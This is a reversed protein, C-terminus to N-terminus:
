TLQRRLWRVSFAALGIALVIFLAAEFAQLEWYRGAPQYTVLEHFKAAIRAACAHVEPQIAPGPATHGGGVHAGVPIGSTLTPCAREIFQPAPQNGTMDVVTTSYVWANPLAPAAPIIEPGAAAHVISFGADLTFPYIREVPAVFHPRVWYAVALRAAVFAALTAAMAPVTRRAATGIAAGLVFGFAGYGIPAIGRLGFTSLAFRNANVADLPSSWWTVILSLVGTIVMAAVAGLILRTLVFRTRTVGQTFSLRFTGTELDRAVLPAGWFLGILVPAVLVLAYFLGQLSRATGVLSAKAAQCDGRAACNIVTTDYLHALHPGTALALVAVLVLGALVVLASVQAQMWTFRIVGLTGARKRLGTSGVPAQRATQSTRIPSVPTSM